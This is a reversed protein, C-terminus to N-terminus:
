KKLSAAYKKYQEDTLITSLASMRDANNGNIQEKKQKESMKSNRVVELKQQVKLNLEGVKTKQDETLSLLTSMKATQKRAIDEVSRKSKKDAQQITSQAQFDDSRKIKNPNVQAVVTTSSILVLGLIITKINKM